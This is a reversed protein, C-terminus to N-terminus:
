IKDIQNLKLAQIILMMKMILINQYDKKHSPTPCLYAVHCWMFCKDDKNKINILGKHYILIVVM